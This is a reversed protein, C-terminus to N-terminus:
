FIVQYQEGISDWSVKQLKNLVDIVGELQEVATKSISQLEHSESPSIINEYNIHQRLILDLNVSTMGGENTETTNKQQKESAAGEKQLTESLIMQLNKREQESLELRDKM